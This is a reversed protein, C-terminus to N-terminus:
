WANLNIHESTEPSSNEKASKSKNSSPPRGVSKSSRPTSGESESEQKRDESKPTNSTVSKLKSTKKSTPPTENPESSSSALLSYVTNSPSKSLEKVKPLVTEYLQVYAALLERSKNLNTGNAAMKISTTSSAANLADLRQRLTEEEKTLQEQKRKLEHLEKYYDPM